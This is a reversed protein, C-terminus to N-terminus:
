SQRLNGSTIKGNNRIAALPHNAKLQLISLNFCCFNCFLKTITQNLEIMLNQM